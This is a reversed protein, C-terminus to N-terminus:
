GANLGLGFTGIFWYGPKLYFDALNTTAIPTIAGGAFDLDIYYVYYLVSWALGTVTARGATLCAVSQNGWVATFPLIWISYPHGFPETPGSTDRVVTGPPAVALLSASVFTYSSDILLGFEQVWDSSAGNGRLSRIQFNYSLGSVLPGVYASFLSVDVTGGDTWATAGELQYQLQIQKVTIDEPATWSVLARPHTVGDTGIYATAPSSAVTMGTPPAAQYPIQSPAAPVDYATLEEDESWEYISPDTQNVSVQLTIAMAKSGGAEVGGEHEQEEVMFHISDVELIADALGLAPMSFAMVDTPQMQWAALQMPFSGSAQYRNRLLVVKSARQAQVIDLVGHLSLEKPLVTGGDYELWENASYGHLVDQAYQPFSTPQFAFPWVDDITGYYWGNKDYLQGPIGGTNKTSYPYNPATYTGNVCNFLDKFSRYPTWQVPGVLASQDFSFSPGQWYAPYIMWGGGVRSLRGAASPMMMALQDGPSTSTDFRMHQTWQPTTGQSTLVDEDCVNAAAILQDIAAEPWATIPGDGLGLPPENGNGMNGIVDAVQLAWNISYGTKQTRPDYIDNKGTVTIRIEPANQFQATDYGVNLYIYACGLVGPAGDGPPVNTPAPVGVTPTSTFIGTQSIPTMATCEGGAVTVTAMAIAGGSGFVSEIFDPGVYGSGGTIRTYSTIIGDTLNASFQAQSASIAPPGWNPDNDSLSKMYDGPLQDGFRVECYVKGAFDYHQGNPGIGYGLGYGPQSPDQQDAAGYGGFTYAGQIDIDPQSTYGGGEAEM